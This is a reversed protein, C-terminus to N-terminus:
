PVPTSTPAQTPAPVGVVTVASAYRRGKKVFTKVVVQHKKALKGTVATHKTLYIRHRGVLIWRVQGGSRYVRRIKGRITAYNRAPAPTATAKTQPLSLISVSTDPAAPTATQTPVDPATAAAIVPAETAQPVRTPKPAKTAKKPSKTRKKAPKPAKTAKKAPKHAKKTPTPQPPATAFAIAVPATPSPQQQPGPAVPRSAPEPTPAVITKDIHIVYPSRTAPTNNMAVTEPGPMTREQAIMLSHSTCRPSVARAVLAADPQINVMVAVHEGPTLKQAVDPAVQLDLSGITCWGNQCHTVMGEYPVEASIGQKQMALIEHARRQNLSAVRLARLDQPTLKLVLNEASRKVPYLVNGPLTDAAASLTTLLALTVALSGLVLGPAWVSRLPRQPRWVWRGLLRLDLAPRGAAKHPAATTTMSAAAQLIRERSRALAAEADPMKQTGRMRLDHALVLMQQLVEVSVQENEVTEGRGEIIELLGQFLDSQLVPRSATKPAASAPPSQLRRAATAILNRERTRQHHQRRRWLSSTRSAFRTSDTANRLVIRSTASLVREKTRALSAAADPMERNGVQQLRHALHAMEQLEGPVNERAAAEGSASVPTDLMDHFYSQWHRHQSTM